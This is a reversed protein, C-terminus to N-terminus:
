LNLLPVPEILLLLSVSGAVCRISFGHVLV